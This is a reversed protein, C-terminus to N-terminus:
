KVKQDLATQNKKYGLVNKRFGLLSQPLIPINNLLRPKKRPVDFCYSDNKDNPLLHKNSVSEVQSGKISATNVEKINSETCGGSFIAEGKCTSNNQPDANIEVGEAMTNATSLSYEIELELPYLLNPTSADETTTVLREGWPLQQSRHEAEEASLRLSIEERKTRLFSFQQERSKISRLAMFFNSDSLGPHINQIHPNLFNSSLLLGLDFPHEHLPPLAPLSKEGREKVRKSYYEWLEMIQAPTHKHLSHSYFTDVNDDPKFLDILNSLLGMQARHFLHLQEQSSLEIEELAQDEIRKGVRVTCRPLCIKNTCPQQLWYKAREAIVWYGRYERSQDITYFELEDLEVVVPAQKAHMPKLKGVLIYDELYPTDFPLSVPFSHSSNYINTPKRILYWDYLIRCPLHAIEDNDDEFCTQACTNERKFDFATSSLLGFVQPHCM